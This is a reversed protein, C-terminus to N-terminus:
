TMKQLGCLLSAQLQSNCNNWGRSLRDACSLSFESDGQRQGWLKAVWRSGMRALLYFKLFLIVVPTRIQLSRPPSAVSCKAGWM